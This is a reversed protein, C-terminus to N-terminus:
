WKQFHLATKGILLFSFEAASFLNDSKQEVNILIKPFLSFFTFLYCWWKAITTRALYWTPQSHQFWMIYSTRTCWLLQLQLEHVYKWVFKPSRRSIGISNLRHIVIIYRPQRWKIHSRSENTNTPADSRVSNLLMVKCVFGSSSHTGLSIRQLAAYANERWWFCCM